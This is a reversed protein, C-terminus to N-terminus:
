DEYLKLMQLLSAGFSRNLILDRQACASALVQIADCDPCINRGPYSRSLEELFKEDRHDIFSDCCDCRIGM